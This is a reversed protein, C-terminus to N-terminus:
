RLYSVGQVGSVVVHCIQISDTLCNKLFQRSVSFSLILILITTTPM